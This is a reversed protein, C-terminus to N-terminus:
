PGSEIRPRGAGAWVVVPIGFLTAPLNSDYCYSSFIGCEAQIFLYHNMDMLWHHRMWSPTAAYVQYCYRTWTVPSSPSDPTGPRVWEDLVVHLEAQGM